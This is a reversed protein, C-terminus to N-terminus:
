LAELSWFPDQKAPFNQPGRVCTKQNMKTAGELNPPLHIPAKRQGEQALGSGVRSNHELIARDRPAFSSWPHNFLSVGAM